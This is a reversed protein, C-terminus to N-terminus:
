EDPEQNEDGLLMAIEERTVQPDLTESNAEEVDDHPQGNAPAGVRGLVEDGKAEAICRLVGDEFSWVGATPLYQRIAGLMGSFNSWQSPEVVVLSAGDVSSLGWAIRSSRARELLCLEVMAMLPDGAILAHWQRQELQSRLGEDVGAANPALVVCNTRGATSEMSM